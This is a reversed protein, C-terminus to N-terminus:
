NLKFAAKLFPAKPLKLIVKLAQLYNLAEDLFALVTDASNKEFLNLFFNDALYYESQLVKLFIKDLTKYFFSKPIIKPIENKELLGVLYKSNKVVNKLTYGSTAKTHGGATGINIVRKDIQKPQILRMPLKGFEKYTISYEHSSLNYEKKIYDPIIREIVNKDMDQSSFITNEILATRSSYPLVYFFNTHTPNNQFDMLIVSDSDFVPKNTEIEWGVFIQDLGAQGHNKYSALHLCSNFVIDAFYKDGATNIVVHEKRYELSDISEEIFDFNPNGQLQEIYFNLLIKSNLTYYNNNNLKKYLYKGEKNKLSLKNWHKRALFNLDFNDEAWYSWTKSVDSTLGQDIILVKKSLNSISLYYALTLGSLGAGCIVIDYKNKM